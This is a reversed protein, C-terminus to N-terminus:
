LFMPLPCHALVIRPLLKASRPLRIGTSIGFYVELLDKGVVWIRGGQFAQLLYSTVLSEELKLNWLPASISVWCLKELLCM